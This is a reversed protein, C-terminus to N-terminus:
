AKGTVGEVLVAQTTNTTPARKNDAQEVVAQTPNCDWARHPPHHANYIPM